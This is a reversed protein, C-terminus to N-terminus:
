KDATALGWAALIEESHAGKRVSAGIFHLSCEHDATSYEM